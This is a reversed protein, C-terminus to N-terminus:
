RVDKALQYFGPGDLYRLTSMDRLVNEEIEHALNVVVPWGTDDITRRLREGPRVAISMSHFSELARVEDLLPYAAVETDFPSVMSVFALHKDIRYDVDRRACFGDPDIYAEVTWELQSDGIAIPTLYPLNIGAIRAGVEVLCPGEETMKLEMHAPGHKIGLADLVDFAYPVLERQVEGHRPLIRAGAILDLQGNATVKEYKWIDTVHHRGDRSVTDVVYEAGVLYEQAVVSENRSSFINESGLISTLAAASQELTDCFAVGDGAASRIPKVVIRGGVERHWATLEEADSTVLHRPGRLGAAKVTEIQEFKDRRARSLATGNTLLGMRESIEDAFEVGFEGGTILLEPSHKAVASITHDLDGEHVINDTYVSLDFSGEYVRPPALTSQLRVCSYGRRVFEAALGRTPAYADVIVVVKDEGM